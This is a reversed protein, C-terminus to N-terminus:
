ACRCPMTCRMRTEIGILVFETGLAVARASGTSRYLLSEGFGKLVGTARTDRETIDM